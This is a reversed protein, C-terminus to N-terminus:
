LYDLLNKKMKVQFSAGIFYFIIVISWFIIMGEKNDFISVNYLLSNRFGRIIYGIPNCKDFLLFTSPLNYSPQWFIPSLFFLLRMVAQIINQFDRALMVLVSTVLSVSSLFALICILYYIIGLASVTPTCGNGFYILLMIVVTWMSDMLGSLVSSIPMLCTPINSRTLLSAKRYVAGASKSIGKSIIIWATVGCTLWVVYPIGDIPQGSRLGIGFVLWYAGIQILPSLIKWLRGLFMDKTAVKYEFLALYYIRKLNSFIDITMQKLSRLYMTM